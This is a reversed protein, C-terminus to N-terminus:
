VGRHKRRQERNRIAMCPLCYSAYRLNDDNDRGNTAFYKLLKEKGCDRCTRIKEVPIQSVVKQKLTPGTLFMEAWAM